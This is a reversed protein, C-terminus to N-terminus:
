KVYVVLLIFEPLIYRLYIGIVLRPIFKCVLLQDDLREHFAHEISGSSMCIGFHGVDGDKSSGRGDESRQLGIPLGRVLVLTMVM